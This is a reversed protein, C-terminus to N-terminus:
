ERSQADIAQQHQREIHQTVMEDTINARDIGQQELEAVIKAVLGQATTDGHIHQGGYFANVRAAGAAALTPDVLKALKVGDDVLVHGLRTVNPDLGPEESYQEDLAAEEFRSAQVALVKGLGQIIVDSSRTAFYSALAAGDTNPLSCVAGERYYKCTKFLSCSDCTIKDGEQEKIRTSMVNVTTAPLHHHSNPDVPDYGQSKFKLDEQFHQGAWLASKINFETRKDIKSLETVSFGLMRIWQGYEDAADSPIKRGNPLFLAKHRAEITADFDASRIDMGFNARFSNSGWLHIIVEPFDHQYRKLARVFARGLHTRYDPWRTVVVRHEQGFVPRKHIPINTNSCADMDEGPPNSLMDELDDLTDEDYTWTQYVAFPMTPSFGRRLEVTDGARVILMRYDFSHPYHMELHAQPDIAKQDLLRGEWIINPILLFACQRIYELPDRFWVETTM